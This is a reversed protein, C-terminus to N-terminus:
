DPSVPAERREGLAIRLEGAGTDVLGGSVGILRMALATRVTRPLKGGGRVVVECGNSTKQLRLEIEAGEARTIAGSLLTSLAEQLVPQDGRIAPVLPEIDVHLAAGQKEAQAQLTPVLAKVLDGPLIRDRRMTRAGRDLDGLQQMAVVEADAGDAAARAAGLMEEQNENLEGFRNELLIHLPLRVEELRKSVDEAVTAMLTAYDRARETAEREREVRGSEAIAVASSLRDVVSEITDLEDADTAVRGPAAASASESGALREVRHAVYRANLWAMALTGVAALAAVVVVAYPVRHEYQGWYALAAVILVGVVAPVVTLYM